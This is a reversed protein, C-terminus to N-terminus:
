PTGNLGGNLSASRPFFTTTQKQFELKILGTPGNRNKLINLEAVGKHETQPNYQEDRYLMLIQDADQEIAGSDRLDSMIPRKDGRTEVARSLQSLCLIPSNYQRAMKKLSRSIHSLEANRNDGVEGSMLQLYDIMIFGVGQSSKMESLKEDLSSITQGPTDDINLSLSSVDQMAISLKSWQDSHLRGNQIAGAQLGSHSSLMRYTIQERSMELSFMAVHTKYERAIHQAMNVALSSKGMSPRAALIVLDGPQFGGQFRNLDPFQTHFGPIVDSKSREEIQAFLNVCIDGMPSLGLPDPNELHVALKDLRRGSVKFKSRIENELLTRKFPDKTELYDLIGTKLSQVTEVIPSKPKSADRSEKILQDIEKRGNGAEIWDAIDFGGNDPLDNWHPSLPFPKVIFAHPYLKIWKQAYDWGKKDMDPFIAIAGAGDLDNSYDGWSDFSNSGGISTLAAYGLEKLANACKEGEVVCVGKGSDIAERVRSYNFIPVRQRAEKVLHSPMKSKSIFESGDWYRQYFEYRGGKQRVVQILREGSRDDYNYTIVPEDKSKYPNVLSEKLLMGWGAGGSAEKIFKWGDMPQEQQHTHCFVTNGFDKISCDGDKDRGCLPCPDTKSSRWSERQM